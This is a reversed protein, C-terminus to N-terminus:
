VFDMEPPGLDLQWALRTDGFSESKRQRVLLM